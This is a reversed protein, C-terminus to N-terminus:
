IVQVVFDGNTYLEQELLYLANITAFVMDVKGATKVSIKKNIYKNLNTDETQRCNCFNNEYALNNHYAFRKELILEKLWKITTHLVSSHQKIEVCPIDYEREWRQASNRLNRLDYGLSIINVEYEEAIGAAFKEFQEYDLVTDGCIITNGDEVSKRYDFKEKQSKDDINDEQVFSWAKSHVTATDPDYGIM